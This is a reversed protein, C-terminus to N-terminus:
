LVKRGAVRTKIKNRIDIWIRDALLPVTIGVVTYFLWWPEPLELVPFAAIMYSELELVLVAILSVIKFCLFHLGVIPVSHISIYQLINTIPRANQLMTGLSYLMAWGAVSAVILFAPNPYINRALSVTGNHYLLLLIATSLILIYIPKVRSSINSFVDYKHLIHGFYVLGYYSLVKDMGHISIGHRQCYFGAMLFVFAITMQAIETYSEKLLKTLVYQVIMYGTLAFFLTNFFWMAGAMQESGSSFLFARIVEKGIDTLSMSQILKIYRSDVLNTKLFAPNNTYINLKLFTNHLLIYAINFGVYPVWLGNIKKKIYRWLSSVDKSYKLNILYGSAIFFIAMHFMRFFDTFLSFGDAHGYVMLLIGVGKVFDITKDRQYGGRNTINKVVM